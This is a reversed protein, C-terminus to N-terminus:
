DCGFLLDNCGPSDKEGRKKLWATRPVTSAVLDSGGVNLLVNFPRHPAVLTDIAQLTEDMGDAIFRIARGLLAFYGHINQAIRASPRTSMKTMLWWVADPTFWQAADGDTVSSQTM